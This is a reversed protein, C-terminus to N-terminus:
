PWCHLLGGGATETSTQDTTIIELLPMKDVPSFYHMGVVQSPRKSQAAIQLDPPVVPLSAVQAWYDGVNFQGSSVWKTIMTKGSWGKTAAECLSFLM